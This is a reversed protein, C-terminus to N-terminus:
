FILVIVVWNEMYLQMQLTSKKFCMIITYFQLFLSEIIGSKEYGYIEAGYLLIPVVLVMCNFMLLQMEVPLNQKRAKRLASFM